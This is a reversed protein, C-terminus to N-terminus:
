RWDECFRHPVQATTTCLTCLRNLIKSSDVAPGKYVLLCQRLLMAEHAGTADSDEWAAAAHTCCWKHWTLRRAPSVQRKGIVGESRATCARLQVARRISHVDHASPM